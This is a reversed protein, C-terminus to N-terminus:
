SQTLVQIYKPLSFKINNILYYVRIHDAKCSNPFLLQCSGEINPLTFPWIYVIQKKYSVEVLISYSKELSYLLLGNVIIDNDITLDHYKAQQSYKVPILLKKLRNNPNVQHMVLKQYGFDLTKNFKIRSIQISSSILNM